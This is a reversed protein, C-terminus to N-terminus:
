RIGTDLDGMSGMLEGGSNRDNGREKRGPTGAIEMLRGM